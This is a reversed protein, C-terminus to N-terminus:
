ITEPVTNSGEEDGCLQWSLHERSMAHRWVLASSAYKKWFSEPLKDLLPKVSRRSARSVMRRIYATEVQRSFRAGHYLGLLFAVLIADANLQLVTSDGRKLLRIFGEREEDFVEHLEQVQFASLSTTLVRNKEHFSLSLSALTDRVLAEDHGDDDIFHRVLWLPYDKGLILPIPKKPM